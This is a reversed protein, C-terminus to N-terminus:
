LSGNFILEESYRGTSNIEWIKEFEKAVEKVIEPNPIMILSTHKAGFNNISSGL